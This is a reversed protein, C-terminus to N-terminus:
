NDIGKPEATNSESNDCYTCFNGNKALLEQLVVLPLIFLYSIIMLPILFTVVSIFAEFSFVYGVGYSAILQFVKDKYPNASVLLFLFITMYFIANNVSEVKNFVKQLKLFIMILLIIQIIFTVGIIIMTAKTNESSIFTTSITAILLSLLVATLLINLTGFHLEFAKQGKSREFFTKHEDSITENQSLLEAITCLIKIFRKKM